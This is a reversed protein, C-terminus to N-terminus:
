SSRGKQATRNDKQRRQLKKKGGCYLRRARLEMAAIASMCREERVCHEFLRTFAFEPQRGLCDDACAQRADEKENCCKQLRPLRRCGITVDNCLM